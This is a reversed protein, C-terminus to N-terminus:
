GPLVAICRNASFETDRTPTQGAPCVTVSCLPSFGTIGMSFVSHFKFQLLLSSTLLGVGAEQFVLDGSPVQEVLVTEM